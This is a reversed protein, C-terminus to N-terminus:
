KGYTNTEIYLFTNDIKNVCVCPQTVNILPTAYLKWLLLSRNWILWSDFDLSMCICFSWLHFKHYDVSCINHNKESKIILTHKIPRKVFFSKASEHLTQFIWSSKIEYIPHKFYVSEDLFGIITFLTYKFTHNLNHPRPRKLSKVKKKNFQIYRSILSTVDLDSEPECFVGTM